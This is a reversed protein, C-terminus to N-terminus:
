KEWQQLCPHYNRVLVVPLWAFSIKSKILRLNNSLIQPFLRDIKIECLCKTLSQLGEPAPLLDAPAAPTEWCNGNWLYQNTKQLVQFILSATRCRWM